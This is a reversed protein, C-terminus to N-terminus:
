IGEIVKKCSPSVYRVMCHGMVNTIKGLRVCEENNYVGGFIWLIALVSKVITSVHSRKVCVKRGMVNM